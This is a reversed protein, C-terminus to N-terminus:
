SKLKAFILKDKSLKKNNFFKKIRGQLKFNNKRLVKQSSINDQHTDAIVLKMKLKKFCYLTALKIARTAIGKNWIKTEGILYRIECNKFLYDMNTLEILGVFENNFVIKFLYNKKDFIKKQLFQKQSKINHKKSSRASFSSVKKNNLWSIWKKLINNTLIKKILILNIKM